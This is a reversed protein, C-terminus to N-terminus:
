RCPHTGCYSSDRRPPDPCQVTRAASHTSLVKIRSRSSRGQGKVVHSTALLEKRRARERGYLYLAVAARCSLQGTRLTNLHNQPFVADNSNHEVGDHRQPRQTRAIEDDAPSNALGTGM